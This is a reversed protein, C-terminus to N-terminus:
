VIALEIGVAFLKGLALVLAAALLASPGIPVVVTLLAALDGVLVALGVATPIDVIGVARHNGLPAVLVAPPVARPGDVVVRALLLEALLLIGVALGVADPLHPERGALLLRLNSDLRALPVARGDFPVLLAVLAGLQVVVFALDVALHREAARVALRDHLGVILAREHGFRFLLSCNCQERQWAAPSAFPACSPLM